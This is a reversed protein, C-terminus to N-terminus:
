FFNKKKENVKLHLIIKNNLFKLFFIQSQFKAKSRFQNNKIKKLKKYKKILFIKPIIIKKSMLKLKSIKFCIKNLHIIKLIWKKLHALLQYTVSKLLIPSIKLKILPLIKIIKLNKNKKHLLYIKRPLFFSHM